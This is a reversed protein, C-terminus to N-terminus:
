RRNPFPDQFLGLQEAFHLSLLCGIRGHGEDGLQQPIQLHDHGDRAPPVPAQDAGRDRKIWALAGLDMALDIPRLLLEVTQGDFDWFDWLLFLM